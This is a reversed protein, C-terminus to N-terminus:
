PTLRLLLVDSSGRSTFTQGDVQVAGQFSGVAMVQGDPLAAFHGAFAVRGDPMLAVADVGGYSGDLTRLWATQGSPILKAVFPRSNFGGLPGSGFDAGPGARGGLIINGAGDTALALGETGNQPGYGRYAQSWLHNGDRSFKVLFMGPDQDFSSSDAGADLAGGGFDVFSFFAGTVILSGNADTAVAQPRILEEEWSYDYLYRGADFGQAWIPSGSPSLKLIFMDQVTGAPPLSGTGLDPSDEYLGAVLVDGLSTVTVATPRVGADGYSRSWLHTGDSAYKAIVMGPEAFAGDGFDGGTPTTGALILEGSPTLATAFVEEADTAGLQRSRDVMGGGNGRYWCYPATEWTLVLM